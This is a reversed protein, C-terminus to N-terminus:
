CISVHSASASHIVLTAQFANVDPTMFQISANQTIEADKKDVLMWATEKIASKPLEAILIMMVNLECKLQLRITIM